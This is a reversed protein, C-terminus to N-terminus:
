PCGSMQPLSSPGRVAQLDRKKARRSMSRWVYVCKRIEKRGHAAMQQSSNGKGRPLVWITEVEMGAKEAIDSLVLDVPIHAGQYRVNDNVMVFPAGPRLIRACEFIVIALELFYNKVMRPIGTNNITGEAKCRELYDVVLRLLEQKEFADIAKAFNSRRSFSKLDQKERNEVTCSLMKQRLDRIGEEDTGLMALELAYTRTYDYRNCYPPSTILGGFSNTSLTPLIELSSGKLLTIKGRKSDSCWADFLMGDSSIDSAIDEIKDTIADTFELIRGKDFVRGGARRGSRSDWRLYQGDKRTYSISELVCMAAFRLIRSVVSDGITGVEYLYRCLQRETEVPFAGSTIRLHNYKKVKGAKMWVRKKGFDRLQSAVKCRDSEAIIKRTEIIEASNPLLEMGVTEIGMESLAFLTTGSGAFPDIIPEKKLEVNQIIYRILAASFGEKYKCWRHGNESKNAQFSVLTRDLEENVELVKSFRQTLKKEAREIGELM